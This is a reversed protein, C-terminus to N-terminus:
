KLPERKVTESPMVKLKPNTPNISVTSSPSPELIENNSSTVPTTNREFYVNLFEKTAIISKQLPREMQISQWKLQHFNNFHQITSNNFDIRDFLGKCIYCMSPKSSKHKIILTIQNIYTRNFSEYIRATEESFKLCKSKLHRKLLKPGQYYCYKIPCSFEILNKTFKLQKGPFLKQM